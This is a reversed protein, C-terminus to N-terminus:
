VIFFCFSMRCPNTRLKKKLVNHKLLFVGLLIRPLVLRCDQETKPGSGPNGPDALGSNGKKKPARYKVM